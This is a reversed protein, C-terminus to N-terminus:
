ENTPLVESENYLINEIFYDSTSHTQIKFNQWEDWTMDRKALNEFVTLVQINDLTDTGGKSSPVKHDISPKALDYFTSTKNSYQKWFNYVSWFQKDNIFYLIAKEYEEIPCKRYYGSTIHTLMKHVFLFDEFNDSFQEVFKETIGNRASALFARIKRYCGCTLQSYNGHPTLYSFRVQIDKKGCALCDCYM